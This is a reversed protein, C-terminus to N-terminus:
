VAPESVLRDIAEGTILTRTGIKTRALKGERLLKFITSRSCRLEDATEAITFKRRKYDSQEPISM